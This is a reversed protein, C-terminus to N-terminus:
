VLILNYRETYYRDTCLVENLNVWFKLNTSHKSRDVFPDDGFIIAKRRLM